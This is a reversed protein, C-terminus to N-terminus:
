SLLTQTINFINKPTCNGDGKRCVSCPPRRLDENRQWLQFGMGGFCPFPFVKINMEKAASYEENTGENGGVILLWEQEQMYMKRFELLHSKWISKYNEDIDLKRLDRDIPYIGGIRYRNTQQNNKTIWSIAEATVIRGVTQVQPCSAVSFGGEFLKETLMSLFGLVKKNFDAETNIITTQDKDEMGLNQPLSGAVFVWRTRAKDIISKTERRSALWQKVNAKVKMKRATDGSQKEPLSIANTFLDILDGLDFLKFIQVDKGPVNTEEPSIESVRAPFKPLAFADAVGLEYLVWPRHISNRTYIPIICQSEQIGKIVKSRWEAGAEERLAIPAFYVEHGMFNFLSKINEALEKDANAYSIFATFKKKDM